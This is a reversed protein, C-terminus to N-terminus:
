VVVMAFAAKKNAAAGNKVATKAHGMRLSGTLFPVQHAIKNASIPTMIITRSPNARPARLPLIEANPEAIPKAPNVIASLHFLSVSTKGM